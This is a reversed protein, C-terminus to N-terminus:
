AGLVPPFVAPAQSHERQQRGARERRKGLGWRQQRSNGLSILLAPKAYGFPAPPPSPLERQWARRRPRHGLGATDRLGPASSGWFVGLTPTAVQREGPCRAQGPFHPVVSSPLLSHTLNHHLQLLARAGLGQLSGPLATFGPRPPPGTMVTPPGRGGVAKGLATSNGRPPPPPPPTPPRTPQAPVPLATPRGRM